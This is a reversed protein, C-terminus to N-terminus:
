RRSRENRALNWGNCGQMSEACPAPLSYHGTRAPKPRMAGLQGTWMDCAIPILDLVEESALMGSRGDNIHEAISRSMIAFTGM